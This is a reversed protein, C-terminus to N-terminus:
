KDIRNVIWEVLRDIRLAICIQNILEGTAAYLEKMRYNLTEHDGRDMSRHFKEKM